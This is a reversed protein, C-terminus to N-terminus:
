LQRPRMCANARPRANRVLQRVLPAVTHAFGRERVAGREAQDLIGWRGLGRVTPLAPPDWRAMEDELVCALGPARALVWAAFVFALEAHRAEDEAITELKAKLGPPEALDAAHRVELAALTEGVIGERVASRLVSEFTTGDDFAHEFSLDAVTMESGSLARVLGFGFRAHRTEDAMAVTARSVLESPAGLALLQLAFRAFSAISAHEALAWDTYHHVLARRQADSMSEAALDVADAWGSGASLAALRAKGEVIFPRGEVVQYKRYKGKNYPNAITETEPAPEAHHRRQAPKSSAIPAASVTPLPVLAETVPTPARSACSMTSLAVSIAGFLVRAHDAHAM